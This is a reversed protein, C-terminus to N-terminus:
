RLLSVELECHLKYLSEPRSSHIVPQCPLLPQFGCVGILTSLDPFRPWSEGMANVSVVVPAEAYFVLKDASLGTQEVAFKIIDDAVHSILGEAIPAMSIAGYSDCHTM